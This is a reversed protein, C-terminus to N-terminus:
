WPKIKFFAKIKEFKKPKKSTSKLTHRDMIDNYIVIVESGDLVAANVEKKKLLEHSKQRLLIYIVAATPPGVLVGIIGFFSGMVTVATLTWVGPLGISAGVVKPYIVNGEFQQLVIFFILFWVADMPNVILLLLAGVIAGIFAGVMPVLAFLAVIFSTLLAYDLGIITMGIFCLVGLIMCETVQGRVYNSFVKNSVSLLMSLKNAFRRPFYAYLLKKFTRIMMEKKLLFYISFIFSVVFVFIGSAVSFTASMLSSFIDTTAKSVNELIATVNFNALVTSQLSEFDFDIGNQTAFDNVFVMLEDIYVPLTKSATDMFARGSRGLEPILILLFLAIIALVFLLAFFVSIPRKIAKWWKKDDYRKNIPIFLFCEFLKVAVNLVFAIFMGAIFPAIASFFMQIASLFSQYQFCVFVLIVTFSIIGLAYLAIRKERNKDM